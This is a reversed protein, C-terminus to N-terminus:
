KKIRQIIQECMKGVANKKYNASCAGVVYIGPIRISNNFEGTIIAKNEDLTVFKTSLYYIDPERPGDMFVVDCRVTAYTDLTIDKLHGEKNTSFNTIKCGPLLAINKVKSFKEKLAASCELRVAESCLYVYRYKRSASTALKVATDDHGIVVAQEDAGAKPADTVRTYFDSIIRNKIKIPTPKTGTAIILNCSFIKTNDKLYVGYLGRNFSTYIAEQRIRHINELLPYKATWQEFDKSVIVININSDKQALQVATAIGEKSAGVIIVDIVKSIDIM